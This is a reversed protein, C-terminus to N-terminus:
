AIAQEWAALAHAWNYYMYVKSIQKCKALINALYMMLELEEHFSSFWFNQKEKPVKIKVKESKPVQLGSLIQLISTHEM